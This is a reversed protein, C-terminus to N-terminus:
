RPMGEFQEPGTSSESGAEEDEIEVVVYRSPLLYRMDSMRSRV